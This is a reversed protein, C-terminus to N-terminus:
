ILLFHRKFLYFQLFKLINEIENKDAEGNFDRNCISFNM